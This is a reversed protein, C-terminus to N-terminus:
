KTKRIKYPSRKRVYRKSSVCTIENNNRKLKIKGKMLKELVESKWQSKDIEIINKQKNLVNLYDCLLPFTVDDEDYEILFPNVIIANGWNKLCNEPTDEIILTNSEDCKLTDGFEKWVKSLRKYRDAHKYTWIFDLKYNKPIVYNIVNNAWFKDAKTWIAVHDFKRSCYDLFSYLYPRAYVAWDKNGHRWIADPNTKIREAKHKEISDILVSDIDLVILKIQHPM